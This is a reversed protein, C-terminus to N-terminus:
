SFQEQLRIFKVGHSPITASFTDSHVGEDKRWLLDRISRPGSILLDDWHLTM